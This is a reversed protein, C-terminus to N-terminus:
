KMNWERKLARLAEDIGTWECGDTAHAYTELMDELQLIIEKAQELYIDHYMEDQKEIYEQNM